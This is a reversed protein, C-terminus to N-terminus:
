IPQLLGNLVWWVDGPRAQLWAVTSALLAAAALLALGIGSRRRAKHAHHTSSMAM